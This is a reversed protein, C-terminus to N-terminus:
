AQDVRLSKDYTKDSWVFQILWFTSHPCCLPRKSDVSLSKVLVLQKMLLARFKLNKYYLFCTTKLKWFHIYKSFACVWLHYFCYLSLFNSGTNCNGLLPLGVRFYLILTWIAIYNDHVLRSYLFYFYAWLNEGVPRRWM